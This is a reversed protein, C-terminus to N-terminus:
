TNWIKTCLGICDFLNTIINFERKLREICPLMVLGDDAYFFAALEQITEGLGEIVAETPLVVTVWHRIVDDVVVNFVLRSLPKGQTVGCYGQFTPTFYGGARAVM